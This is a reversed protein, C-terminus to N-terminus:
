FKRLHIYWMPASYVFQTYPTKRKKKKALYVQFGLYKTVLIGSFICELSTPKQTNRNRVQPFGGVGDGVDELM